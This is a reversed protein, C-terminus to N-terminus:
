VGTMISSIGTRNRWQENDIDLIRRVSIALEQHSYPKPLLASALQRTTEDRFDVGEKSLAKQNTFGSALLVRLSPDFDLARNALEFGNINGPMVVDSFILDIGEHSKLLSLADEGDNAVLTEYGLGKLNEVAVELLLEEDDVVLITENGRLTELNIEDAPQEETVKGKSRPLYIRCTTGTGLESYFSVEGGSRTVFGFVMSLGLGTGQGRAKTSFFPEFMKDLVDKEIGTGSDIIELRVYDGPGIEPNVFAHNRDLTINATEIRLPGGNPMADRANIVLNILTDAFDGPDIDTLWLQEDLDTKFEIKTTVSKRILDGMELILDNISVVKTIQAEKRSFQLLSQTLEAGRKTSSLAKDIWSTLFEDNKVNRKLLELNGLIIGLLNNFDHAIGGTLQGVADLKQTRRLAVETKNVETVDKAASLIHKQGDLNIYCATMLGSWYSGDKKRFEASLNKVVGDKLLGSVLRERDEINKWLALDISSKGVVEDRSYGTVACFGENVSVCTGDLLKTIMHVDPSLEYFSVFKEEEERLAENFQEAAVRAKAEGSLARIVFLSYIILVVISLLGLVITEIEMRESSRSAASILSHGSAMDVALLEDIVGLTNRENIEFVRKVLVIKKPDFEENTLNILEQATKRLNSYQEEVRAVLDNHREFAFDTAVHHDLKFDGIAIEFIRFGEETLEAEEAEIDGSIDPVDRSAYLVLLENVSSVIRAVGFRMDHLAKLSPFVHEHIAASARRVEKAGQHNAAILFVITVLAMVSAIVIKLRQTM